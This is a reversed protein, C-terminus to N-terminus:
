RTGDEEQVEVSRDCWGGKLEEFICAGVKSGKCM